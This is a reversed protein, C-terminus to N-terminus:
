DGPEPPVAPEDPVVSITAFGNLFAEVDTAPDELTSTCDQDVLPNGGAAVPVEVVGRVEGETCSPVNVSTVDADVEGALLADRHEAIWDLMVPVAVEYDFGPSGSSLALAPIGRAVAARAAGITGSVDVLPGANQGENIGSVVLHPDLALEDVAVRLTDAPYGAVAVAEHGSATQAAETELPGEKYTGGSGSRQEAPAVVSVEVDGLEELAVVVADIGEAGVGDDNTVVVRLTEGSAPATTSATSGTSTTTTTSGAAEAGAGDDGGCAGLLAVVLVLAAVGSRARM